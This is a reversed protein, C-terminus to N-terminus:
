SGRLCSSSLGGVRLSVFLHLIIFLLLLSAMAPRRPQLAAPTSPMGGFDSLVATQHEMDPKVIKQDAAPLLVLQWLIVTIGDDYDQVLVLTFLRVAEIEPSDGQEEDSAFYEGSEHEVPEYWRDDSFVEGLALTAESGISAHCVHHEDENFELFLAVFM